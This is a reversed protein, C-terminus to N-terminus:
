PYAWTSGMTLHMPNVGQDLHVICISLILVMAIIVVDLFVSFNFFHCFNWEAVGLFHKPVM